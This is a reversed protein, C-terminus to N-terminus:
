MFPWCVFYLLMARNIYNTIRFLTRYLCSIFTCECSLFTRRVIMFTLVFRAFIVFYRRVCSLMRGLRANKWIHLYLVIRFVCSFLTHYCTNKTCVCVNHECRCVNTSTGGSRASPKLRPRMWWGAVYLLSCFSSFWSCQRVACAALRAYVKVIYFTTFWDSLFYRLNGWRDKAGMEHPCVINVHVM